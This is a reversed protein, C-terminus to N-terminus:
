ADAPKFRHISHITTLGGWMEVMYKPWARNAQEHEQETMDQMSVLVAADAPLIRDLNNCRKGWFCDQKGMRTDLNNNKKLLAAIFGTFLWPDRVISNAAMPM